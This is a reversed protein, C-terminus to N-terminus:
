VPPMPTSAPDQRPQERITTPTQAPSPLVPPMQSPPTEQLPQSLTGPRQPRNVGIVHLPRLQQYQYTSLPRNDSDYSHAALLINEPNPEKGVAVVVPTHEYYAAGFNLQIVDGPELESLPVLRMVPGQGTNNVMFNYFYEVGTWSATRDNADIYFWGYVPTYNMIGAGAFVCQSAFNTCDGGIGSFDFFAPNRSYAWRHAYTVAAQRDYPELPL